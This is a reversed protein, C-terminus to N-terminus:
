SSKRRRRALGLGGLATLLLFAAAPVPVPAIFDATGNIAGDGTTTLHIVHTISYLDLNISGQIDSAASTNTSDLNSLPTAKDFLTAGYYTKVNGIGILTNLSQTIQASQTGLLPAEASNDFVHSVELTIDGAAETLGGASLSAFLKDQSPFTQNTGAAITLNFGGFTGLFGVANNAIDGGVGDTISVTASSNVNDYLNMTVASASAPLLGLALVAGVINFKTFM